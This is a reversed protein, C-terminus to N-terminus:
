KTDNAARGRQSSMDIPEMPSSPHIVLVQLVM